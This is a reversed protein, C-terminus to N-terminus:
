LHNYDDDVEEMDYVMNGHYYVMDEIFIDEFFYVYDESIMVNGESKLVVEEVEIVIDMAKNEYFVISVDVDM